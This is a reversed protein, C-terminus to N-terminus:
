WDARNLTRATHPHALLQVRPMGTKHIPADPRSARGLDAFVRQKLPLDETIAEIVLDIEQWPLDDLVRMPRGIRGALYDALTRCFDVANDAM